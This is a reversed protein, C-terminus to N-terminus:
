QVKLRWLRWWPTGPSDHHEYHYGFFYCSLFAWLHNSSQTHAHHPNDPGHEGMHPIFTGFYFLQFTSLVSPIVWFLILNERAIWIAAVNFFVGALVFQKISLYSRLFDLYWRFFSPNGRHFDPDNESAVHRHHAYHKPRMKDYSNFLFLTCCIRGLTHNLKPLRPSATGHMADHATIFLGTFLHTQLWLRLYTLPDSWEVPTLFNYILLLTWLIIITVGIWIGPYAYPSRSPSISNM